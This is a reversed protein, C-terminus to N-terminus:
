WQVSKRTAPWVIEADERVVTWRIVGDVVRRSASHYHQISSFTIEHVPDDNDTEHNRPKSCKVPGVDTDCDFITDPDIRATCTNYDVAGYDIRGSRRAVPEFAGDSIIDRGCDPEVGCCDMNDPGGCM